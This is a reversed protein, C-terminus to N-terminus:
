KVSIHWALACLASKHFHKRASAHQLPSCIVLFDASMTHRSVSGACAERYQRRLSRRDSATCLAFTRSCVRM